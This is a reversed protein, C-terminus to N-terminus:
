IKEYLKSMLYEKDEVKSLALCINEVEKEGLTTYFSSSIGISSIISDLRRIDHIQYFSRNLNNHSRIDRLIMNETIKKYISKKTYRLMISDDIELSLFYEIHGSFLYKIHKVTIKYTGYKM